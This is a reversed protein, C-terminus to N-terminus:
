LPTDAYAKGPVGGPGAFVGRDWIRYGLGAAVAAGAGGAIMMRRSVM